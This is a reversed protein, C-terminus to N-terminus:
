HFILLLQYLILTYLLSPSINFPTPSINNLQNYISLAEISIEEAFFEMCYNVEYIDGKQIHNKIKNVTQMYEAKSVRNNIEIKQNNIFPSKQEFTEIEYFLPAASTACEFQTLYGIDLKNDKILFIYQPIFFYMEPFGLGDLNQSSLQEIENKLDYSFYGFLWDNNEKSLKELQNFCDKHCASVYKYLGSAALLDYQAYSDKIPLKENNSNLVIFPNKTNGWKILQNIFAQQDKLYFDIWKRM